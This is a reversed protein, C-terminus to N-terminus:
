NKLADKIEKANGAEMLKMRLEKSGDFGSVYCRLYKKFNNFSKIDGYYKEFLEAHKLLIKFKEEKSITEIKKNFIWPNNLIARGIMIGDAGFEKAKEMGDERSKVDGNGIILTESEKAMETIKKILNWDAEGGYGQKCTRAHVCIASLNEELLESIWNEMEDKKYFGIRTKVTVPIQRSASGAGRKTAGIIERALKPNKILAAGGGNKLVDKDPCGMNIDIGDFGLKVMIKASEYFKEPDKGFLQVVIPREKRTIELNPRSLINNKGVSCLGDVSVFWAYFVDPKGCKSVIQRMPSDTIDLMPALCFFPKSLKEWFNNNM